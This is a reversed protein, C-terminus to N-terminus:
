IKDLQSKKLFFFKEKLRYCFNVVQNKGFVFTLFSTIFTKLLSMCFGVVIFFFHRVVSHSCVRQMPLHKRLWFWVKLLSMVNGVNGASVRLSAHWTKLVFLPIEAFIFLVAVLISVIFFKTTTIMRNVITCSFCCTLKCVGQDNHSMQGDKRVAKNIILNVCLM